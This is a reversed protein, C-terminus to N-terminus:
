RTRQVNFIARCLKKRSKKTNCSLMFDMAIEDVMDKNVCTPLKAIIAELNASNNTPLTSSESGSDDAGLDFLWSTFEYNSM